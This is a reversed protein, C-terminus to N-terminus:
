VFSNRFRNTHIEPLKFTRRTRLHETYCSSKPPLLSKLKHQSSIVIDNFLKNSLFERREYLSLLRSAALASSYSIGPFIIRMVRKQIREIEESLSKPLSSHFLQCAHELTSRICSCYIHVLDLIDIGARKLQRLLYLRKSVKMNVHDTCLLDDRLTVGLMKASQVRENVQGEIEMEDFKIPQKKFFIILEKCKEPHIHFSNIRSWESIHNLNEQLSSGGNPPISESTTTDDAFKWIYTSSINASLSLDNMM